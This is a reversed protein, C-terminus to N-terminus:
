LLLLYIKHVKTRVQSCKELWTYAEYFDKRTHFLVYMCWLLMGSLRSVEGYVKDCMELAKRFLKEKEESGADLLSSKNMICYAVNGKAKLKTFLKIAEEVHKMSETKADQASLTKDGGYEIWNRLAHSLSRLISALKFKQDDGKAKRRLNLCNRAHKIYQQVMDPDVNRALAISDLRESYVDCILFYLDGLIDQRGGLEKVELDLAKEILEIAKDYQGAQKFVTAIQEQRNALTEQDDKGGQTKLEDLCTLYHNVMMDQWQSEGNYRQIWFRLLNISYEDDYMADFLGWETEMNLKIQPKEVAAASQQQTKTNEGKAVDFLLLKHQRLKEDSKHASLGTDCIYHKCDQCKAVARSQKGMECCTCSFEVEGGTLQQKSAEEEVLEKLHFDTPFQRVGGKPVSSEKRCLPCSIHKTGTPALPVLCEECFRHMCPLMKPNKFPLLCIPCQLAKSGGRNVPLWKEQKARKGKDGLEKVVDSFVKDLMEDSHAQYYLATGMLIGLWGTPQFNEEVKLPIIVKDKQFAYEAEKKCCRSDQYRKSVCMLIADANEVADAMCALTDGAMHNIDMWINYGAEKLKDRLKIMRKQSDWQYSIMVHKTASAKDDQSTAM